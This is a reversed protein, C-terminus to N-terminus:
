KKVTGTTTLKLNKKKGSKDGQDSSIDYLLMNADPKNKSNSQSSSIGADPNGHLHVPSSSSNRPYSSSNSLNAVSPLPSTFNQVKTKRPDPYM